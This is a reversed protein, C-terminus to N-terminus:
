GNTRRISYLNISIPIRMKKNYDETLKIISENNYLNYLKDKIDEKKGYNREIHYCLRAKWKKHEIKESLKKDDDKFIKDADAADESFHLLRYLFGRSLKNDNDNAILLEGIKKKIEILEDFDSWESTIGFIDIRNRGKKAEKLVDEARKAMERVPAMPKSLIIGASITIEKNQTYKELHCKIDHALEIIENWAGILFLDDGGSFVTYISKGEIEKQLWGTFFYDLMRSLAATKAISGTDKGDKKFGESFITGLYDVDAKLVGLYDSGKLKDEELDLADAAIHYFTKLNTETEIDKEKGEPYRKDDNITNYAREEKDSLTESFRPVYSSIRKVPLISDKEKGLAFVIDDKTGENKSLYFGYKDFVTYINEGTKKTFYIYRSDLIEKGIKKFERCHKCMITDSDKKLTGWHKGCIKCLEKGKKESLYDEFVHEEKKIEPKLKKCELEYAIEGMLESFNDKLKQSGFSHYAINFRTQGFTMKHFSDNIRKKITDIKEKIDSFNPALITFKGGANMIICSVPIKLEECIMKAALEVSASVYFSKARLIKAAFKNSEGGADFIFEQIGTFDGQIFCLSDDKASKLASAIASRTKCYDYLSISTEENKRAPVCWLHKEFVYCLSNYFNEDSLKGKQEKLKDLDKEFSDLLANYAEKDTEEKLAPSIDPKLKEFKYYYPNIEKSTLAIESFVSLLNPPNKENFGTEFEFDAILGKAKKILDNDDKSPEYFFELAEKININDKRLFEGVGCVLAALAIGYGNQEDNNSM